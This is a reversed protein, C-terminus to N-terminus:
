GVPRTTLVSARWGDFNSSVRERCWRVGALFVVALLLAQGLFESVSRRTGLLSHTQTALRGARVFLLLRRRSLPRCLLSM